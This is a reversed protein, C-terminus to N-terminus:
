YKNQKRFKKNMENDIKNNTTYEINFLKADIM